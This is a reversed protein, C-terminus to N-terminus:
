LFLNLLFQFFVGAQQEVKGLGDGHAHVFQEGAYLGLEGDLQESRIEIHQLFFAFGDGLGHFGHVTGGVHM